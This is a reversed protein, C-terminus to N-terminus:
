AVKFINKWVKNDYKEYLCLLLSLTKTYSLITKEVSLM